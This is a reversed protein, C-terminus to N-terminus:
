NQSEIEKILESIYEQTEELADAIQEVSQGKELKKKVLQMLKIKEGRIIGCEIGRKEAKDLVECMTKVEGKQNLIEEFRNDATLVSMLKLVADVHEIIDTSPTYDKNKRLQVFYDAVIRFDSTFMAVQEDTLFAIDFVQINYDNIYPELKPEIALCKKLSKTGNWRRETGFYLVLSIVPYKKGKNNLQARYSAGDYGIVRIPMNKEIKTQNEFGLLSFTTKGRTWYKSVDREQEHMKGDSKYITRTVDTALEEPKVEKEGNFLLVNVIDAFVDNYSELYYETMDKTGM